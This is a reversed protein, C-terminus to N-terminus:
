VGAPSQRLSLCQHYFSLYAEVMKELSYREAVTQFAKNGLRRRYAEDELLTLLAQALEACNGPRVLLGNVGHRIIAPVDGVRTAVCPKGLSMAELLSVPCGEWLSPLVFIDCAAVIGLPDKQFGLLKVRSDIKLERVRTELEQRLPGEGVIFFKVREKKKFVESAALLLDTQGKAPRLNGVTVVALEGAQLGLAEEPWPRVQRIEVGNPIVEIKEEPAVQKKVLIKQGAYCNSIIAQCWRVTVKDLWWHYWRRWPDTSRQSSIVVPVRSLRGSLRGFINGWFIVTHLIDPKERSIARVLRWFDGPCRKLNVIMTELGAQHLAESFPGEGRILFFKVRYGKEQIGKGLLLFMKEAGGMDAASLLYSM